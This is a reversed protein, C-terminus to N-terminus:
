RRDRRGDRHHATVVLYRSTTRFAGPEENHARLLDLLQRRAEDAAGRQQLVEFARVALPHTSLEADLYAEPSSAEFTLEHPGGLAAVMGHRAFLDALSGADHWAFRGAPPPGGVAERVMEQMAVALAGLAGGPLWSTFAARGDPKLVRSMEGVAADPDPAFVVAFNSLICDFAADRAPIAAAEGPACTVEFGLEAARAAAVALLRTSPDVAMVKAGAEAALLAANGTGCGVDVLDEGARVGATAVLVEAAPLLLQATREYSGAGWEDISMPAM